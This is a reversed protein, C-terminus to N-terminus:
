QAEGSNGRAQTALEAWYRDQEAKEEATERVLREITFGPVLQGSALHLRAHALMSRASNTWWFQGGLENPQALDCGMCEIKKEDRGTGVIYVDREGPSYRAYSM